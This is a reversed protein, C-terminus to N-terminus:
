LYDEQDIQAYIVICIEGAMCSFSSIHKLASNSGELIEGACAFRFGCAGNECIPALHGKKPVIDGPVTSYFVHLYCLIICKFTNHMQFSTNATYNDTTVKCQHVSITKGLICSYLNHSSKHAHHHVDLLLLASLCVSCM